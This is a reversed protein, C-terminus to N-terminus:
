FSLEKNLKNITTFDNNQVAKKYNKLIKKYEPSDMKTKIAAILFDRVEKWTFNIINNNDTVYFCVEPMINDIQNISDSTLILLQIEHLRAHLVKMPINLLEEFTFYKNINNLRIGKNYKKFKDVVPYKSLTTESEKESIILSLEDLSKTKKVAIKEM